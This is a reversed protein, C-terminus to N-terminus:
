NRKHCCKQLMREIRKLDTINQQAIRRLARLFAEEAVAVNNRQFERLAIISATTKNFDNFPHDIVIARVLLAVRKFVTTERQAADCAFDLSGSRALRGGLEQNIRVTEDYLEMEMCM